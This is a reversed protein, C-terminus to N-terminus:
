RRWGEKTPRCFKKVNLTILRMLGTFCTKLVENM